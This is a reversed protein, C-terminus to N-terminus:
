GAKQPDIGFHKLAWDVQDRVIAPDNRDGAKYDERLKLVTELGLRDTKAKLFPGFKPHHIHQKGM